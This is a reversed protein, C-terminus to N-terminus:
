LGWGSWKSRKLAQTLSRGFLSTQLPSPGQNPNTGDRPFAAELARTQPDVPNDPDAPGYTGGALTNLSQGVDVHLSLMEPTLATRSLIDLTM